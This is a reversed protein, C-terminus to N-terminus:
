ISASLLFFFNLEKETMHHITFQPLSWIAYPHLFDMEISPPKSSLQLPPEWILPNEQPFTVCPHYSLPTWPSCVLIPVEVSNGVSHLDCSYPFRWTSSFFIEEKEKRWEKPRTKRFKRIKTGKRRTDKLKRSGDWWFDKWPFMPVYFYRGGGCLERPIKQQPLGRLTRLSIFLFPKSTTMLGQLLDLNLPTMLWATGVSIEVSKLTKPIGGAGYITPNWKFFGQLCAIL